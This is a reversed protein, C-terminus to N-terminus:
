HLCPAAGAGVIEVGLTKVTTAHHAALDYETVVGSAETFFFVRDNWPLLANATVAAVGTEDRGFVVNRGRHKM